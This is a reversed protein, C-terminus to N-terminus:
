TAAASTLGNWGAQDECQPDSHLGPCTATILSGRVPRIRAVIFFIERPAMGRHQHVRPMPRHVWARCRKEQLYHLSATSASFSCSREQFHTGDLCMHRWVGFSDVQRGGQGTLVGMRSTIQGDVTPILRPWAADISAASCMNSTAAEM